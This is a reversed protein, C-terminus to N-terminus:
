KSYFHTYTSCMITNRMQSSTVLSGALVDFALDKEGEEKKKLLMCCPSLIVLHMMPSVCCSARLHAEQSGASIKAGRILSDDRRLGAKGIGREESERERKLRIEMLPVGRGSISANALISFFFFRPASLPPLKNRERLVTITNVMKPKSQREATLGAHPFFYIFYGFGHAFRVGFPRGRSGKHERM